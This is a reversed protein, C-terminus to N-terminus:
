PLDFVLAFSGEQGGVELHEEGVVAAGDGPCLREGNVTLPGGAAQVWARRGSLPVETPRLVPGAHVTVDQHITLTAGSGDRTAVRVLGEDGFARQEYSPALGRHEPLIWIQLLHVPTDPDPNMESHRVGTGATMRQVEGPRIRATTGLSDRHELEGSLVVTLIEMDQHPHMGFGTGGKVRDENLVRLASFGMHDPDYHDGFSFSHFSDLWPLRTRGRASSPHLTIM